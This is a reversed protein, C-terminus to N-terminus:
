KAYSELFGCRSCRWTEIEHQPKGSVKLGYWRKEPAGEVWTSVARSGGDKVDLVFGKTM